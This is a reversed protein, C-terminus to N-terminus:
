TGFENRRRGLQGQLRHVISSHMQSVRSESLDLTAGIEKMTLEEYYYLIIILRENRNLGKTVLRMLDSKYVRRTPDEGKKDELIDIERVDKYSDTEYWKKNLSVLNVANAEIIMKELEAVPIEMREALEIETPHRGLKAELSKTAEGLKSAKSRVLRPVWDMTRLEDLMAGRIRPVCYTEFKVGRTMDFADIADMLGFVGASILDDLEVGEPLRAWIREGNYKVLPLYREVLRNRLDKREPDAKYENWVQVIEDAQPAAMTTTM